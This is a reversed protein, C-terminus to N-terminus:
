GAVDTQRLENKLGEVVEIVENVYQDKGITGRQAPHYVEIFLRNGCKIFRTTGHKSINEGSVGCDRFVLAMHPPCGIVINPAYADIQKWLITKYKEYATAIANNKSTSLGPLKSVNIFAISHLILVMDPQDEIDPLDKWKPFGNLLSWTVYIIPDFTRQGHGKGRTKEYVNPIGLVHEPISFGGGKPKGNEVDDYPEKLMWLIRYQAALYKEINVIGDLVPEVKGTPDVYARWIDTEIERERCEMEERNM